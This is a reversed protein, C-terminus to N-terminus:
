TEQPSGGTSSAGSPSAPDGPEQGTPQSDGLAKDAETTEPKVVVDAPIPETDSAWPCLETQKTNFWVTVPQDGPLMPIVSKCKCNCYDEVGSLEEIEFEIIVRDGKKLPNGSRDHM